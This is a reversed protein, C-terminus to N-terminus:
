VCAIYSQLSKKLFCSTDSHVLVLFSSFHVKVHVLCVVFVRLCIDM